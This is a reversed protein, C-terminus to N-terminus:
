DFWETITRKKLRKGKSENRSDFPKSHPSHRLGPPLWIRLQTGGSLIDVNVHASGDMPLYLGRSIQLESRQGKGAKVISHTDKPSRRQNWGPYKHTVDTVTIYRADISKEYTFFRRKHRQWWFAAGEQGLDAHALRLRLAQDGKETTAGRKSRYDAPRSDLTGQITKDVDVRRIQTITM